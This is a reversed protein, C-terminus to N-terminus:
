AFLDVLLVIPPKKRTNSAERPLPAVAAFSGPEDRGGVPSDRGTTRKRGNFISGSGSRKFHPYNQAYIVRGMLYVSLTLIPLSLNTTHHHSPPCFIRAAASVPWHVQPAGLVRPPAPRGLGSACAVVLGGWLM